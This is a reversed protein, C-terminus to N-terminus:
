YVPLPGWRERLHHVLSRVRGDPALLFYTEEGRPRAVVVGASELAKVHDAVVLTPRHVREAIEALTWGRAPANELVTLIDRGVLGAVHTELFRLLEIDVIHGNTPGRGMVYGRTFRVLHGLRLREM